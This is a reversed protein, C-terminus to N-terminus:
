CESNNTVQPNATECDTGPDATAAEAPLLRSFKVLIHKGEFLDPMLDKMRLIEEQHSFASSNNHESSRIGNYTEGSYSVDGDKEIKCWAMVSPVLLHRSGVAFDYDPLQVKM